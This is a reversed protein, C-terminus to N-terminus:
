HTFSRAARNLLHEKMFLNKSFDRTYARQATRVVFANHSEDPYCSYTVPNGARKGIDVFHQSLHFKPTLSVKARSAHTACLRLHLGLRVADIRRCRKQKYMLEYTAQLHSLSQRLHYGEDGLATAAAKAKLVRLAFDALGRTEAGKAKLNGDGLMKLTIRGLRSQKSRPRIRQRFAYWRRLAASLMRVGQQMGPTSPANGLVGRQLVLLLSHGVLKACVGLDLCHLTDIMLHELRMGRIRMLPSIFSYDVGHQQRWFTLRFPPAGILQDITGRVYRCAGNLELRDWKRLTVLKGDHRVTVPKSLARGHVSKGSRMDLQLAEFIIEADRRDVTVSVICRGVLKLYDEHCHSPMPQKAYNHLADKPVSCLWCPFSQNHRPMGLGAGLQDWDARVELLIWRVRKGNHELLPAGAEHQVWPQGDYFAEPATGSSAVDCSWRLYDDVVDTTCRGRCPCSCTLGCLHSKRVSFVTRRRAQAPGVLSVYYALVSDRTGAGKGKYAAADAFLGYPIPLDGAAEAALRMPHDLWNSTQLQRAQQLVVDSCKAFEEALVEHVMPCPRREMCRADGSVLPLTLSHLSAFYEQIGLARQLTRSCNRQGLKAASLDELDVLGVKVLLTSLRCVDNATLVGDAYLEVIFARLQKMNEPYGDAETQTAQHTAQSRAAHQPAKPGRPVPALDRARIKQM